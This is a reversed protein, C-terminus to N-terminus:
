PRSLTHHKVAPRVVIFWAAASLIGYWPHEFILSVLNQLAFM